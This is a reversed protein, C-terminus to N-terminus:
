AIPVALTKVCENIMIIITAINALCFGFLFTLHLEVSSSYASIVLSLLLLLLSSGFLYGVLITYEDCPCAVMAVLHIIFMVFSWFRIGERWKLSFVVLLFISVSLIEFLAPVLYKIM